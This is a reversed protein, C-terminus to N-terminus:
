GSDLSYSNIISVLFTTIMRKCIAALSFHKQQRYITLLDFFEFEPSTKQQAVHLATAKLM